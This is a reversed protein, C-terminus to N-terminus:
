AAIRGFREDVQEGTLGFDSLAYRHAPRVDTGSQQGRVLALATEGDERRDTLSTFDARLRAPFGDEYIRRVADVAATDLAEVPELAYAATM